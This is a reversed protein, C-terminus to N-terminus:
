LAKVSVVASNLTHRKGDIMVLLEANDNVGTAVGTRREGNDLIIEVNKDICFDYRARFRELYREADKQFCQCVQVVHQMLLSAVRSREPPERQQGSELEYCIDTLEPLESSVDHRLLSMDYNLGIGIVAAVHRSDVSIMDVQEKRVPQTEILIGAIKRGRVYVDNPWKVQVDDLKISELTDVIAMSIALPLLHMQQYSIAFPWSLSMAINNHPQMLWQKGRRGKGSTQQEAFCAFPLAKGAKCQQLSWTNTSDISDYVLVDISAGSAASVDAIISEAQLKKGSTERMEGWDIM